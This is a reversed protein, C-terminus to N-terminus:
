ARRDPPTRLRRGGRAAGRGGVARRRALPVADPRREGPRRQGRGHRRRRLPAGPKPTFAYYGIGRPADAPATATAARSRRADPLAGAPVGRAVAAQAARRAARADLPRAHDAPRLGGRRPRSLPDARGALAGRADTRRDAARPDRDARPGVAEDAERLRGGRARLPRQERRQGPRARRSERLRLVVSSRPRDRPVAPEDARLPGPLRARRQLPRDRAPQRRRDARLGPRRRRAREQRPRLVRRRGQRGPLPPEAGPVKCSGPDTGSNASVVGGDLIDIYWRTENLQTNDVNDGTAIALAPASGDIPSRLRRVQQVTEEMVFPVLGEQPRYGADLSGGYRDVLEVRAPSEEDVLQFDTLQVFSLLLRRRSQRGAQPAALETRVLRQEAPGADLRGDNNRDVITGALTTAPPPAAGAALAALGAALCTAILTRSRVDPLTRSRFGFEFSSRHRLGLLCVHQRSQGICPLLHQAPESGRRPHVADRAGHRVQLVLDVRERALHAPHLLELLADLVEFALDLAERLRGARPLRAVARLVDDDRM